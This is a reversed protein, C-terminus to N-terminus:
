KCLNLKTSAIDRSIGFGLSYKLRGTVKYKMLVLGGAFLNNTSSFPM